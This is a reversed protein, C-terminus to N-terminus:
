KRPHLDKYDADKLYADLIFKIGAGPNKSIRDEMNARYLNKLDTNFIYGLAKAVEIVTVDGLIGSKTLGYSLQVLWNINRRWSLKGRGPASEGLTGQSVNLASLEGELYEVLLDDRLIEAVEEDRLTRFDPNGNISVADAPFGNKKWFRLFYQQDHDSRGSRMYLHLEEQEAMRGQISGLQNEFYKRVELSGGGPRHLELVYLERVYLMQSYFAPKIYKFFHIECEDTNFTNEKAWVKVDDFVRECAVSCSEATILSNRVEEHCREREARMEQFLGKLADPMEKQPEYNM